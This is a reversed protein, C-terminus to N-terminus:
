KFGFGRGLVEDQEQLASATQELQSNIDMLLQSFDQVKPKLQQFQNDFGEFAKGEWESRLTEQLTSLENLITDIDGSKDKYTKARLRLEEPSMRIQGSVFM